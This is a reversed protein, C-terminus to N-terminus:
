YTSRKYIEYCINSRLKVNGKQMLFTLFFKVSFKHVCRQYIKCVWKILKDISVVVKILFMITIFFKHWPIHYPRAMLEVNFTGKMDKHYLLISLQQQCSNRFFVSIMNYYIISNKFKKFINPFQQIHWLMECKYLAPIQIKTYQYTVHM